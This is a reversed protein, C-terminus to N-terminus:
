AVSRRYRERGECRRCLGHSKHPRETTGCITCCDYNNAWRQPTPNAEQKLRRKRRAFCNTCLGNGKHPRDTTGCESCAAYDLSWEHYPRAPQKTVRHHHRNWCTICRGDGAHKKDTTGCDICREHNRSWRDLTRAAITKDRYESDQWLERMTESHQQVLEPSPSWGRTGGGGITINLLRDGRGRYVSIWHVERSPWSEADTEELVYFAPFKGTSTLSAVWQGVNPQRTNHQSRVHEWFRKMPHASAGVYRMEHTEPDALGYIYRCGPRSM